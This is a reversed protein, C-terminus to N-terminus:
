SHHCQFALKSRGQASFNIQQCLGGNTRIETFPDQAIKLDDIFRSATHINLLDPESRHIVERDDFNLNFFNQCVM